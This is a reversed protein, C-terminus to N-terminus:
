KRGSEVSINWKQYMEIMEEVMLKIMEVSMMQDEAHLLLLNIPINEGGAEQQILQTHAKHGEATLGEGEAILEKAKNFEQQKAAALAEMYKTKAAGANTILQFCILELGKM